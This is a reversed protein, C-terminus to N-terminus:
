FPLPDGEFDLPLQEMDGQITGYEILIRKFEGELACYGSPSRYWGTKKDFFMKVCQPTGARKHSKVKQIDIEVTNDTKDSQNFPRHIGGITYAKNYWMAGGEVEYPTSKKYDEEGTEKRLTKPHAVIHGSLSHTKCLTDIKTLSKKLYSNLNSDDAVLQNYPDIIFGDIGKSLKLEKIKENVNEGSNEIDDLEPYIFYIHDNIFAMATAFEEENLRNKDDLDITRGTLIQVMDVYFDEEPFHEPSFVAWKWNHKTAYCMMLFFVFASKGSNPIGHWLSWWPKYASWVGSLEPIGSDLGKKYGSQYIAWMKDKSQDVTRVGAIPTDQAEELIRLVEEKGYVMLVDNLDKCDEPMEVTACRDAGFRATLVQTLYRGNEDNDCALIVKKAKKIYEISNDLCQLKAGVDSGANPAGQSVSGVNHVGCEWCALVDFEGEVIIITEQSALSDLNYLYKDCGAHQWFFKKSLLRYKAGVVTNAKYYNFCIAGQHSALRCEKATQESIGREALFSIAEKTLNGFHFPKIQIPSPKPIIIPKSYAPTLGTEKEHEKNIWEDSDVQKSIHCHNCNYWGTDPYVKLVKLRQHEKKRTHSCEPCTTYGTSTVKNLDINAKQFGINYTAM